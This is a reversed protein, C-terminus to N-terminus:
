LSNLYTNLNIDKNALGLKNRAKRRHEEVTHVSISLLEAIEKNTTGNKVMNCVEIERPTLKVKKDSIKSGFSSTLSDLSKRHQDIYKKSAGKLRFKDLTPLVITELNSMIDKKIREKDLEIQTLVEKLAINKEELIKKQKKLDKESQKLAEEAVKRETIERWVARAGVVLGSSSYVSTVSLSVDIVNGDKKVVKLEVDNVKKGKRWLGIARKAINASSPHYLDLISRGIIEDKKFGLNELLTNNCNTIKKTKSDVTLYMIPANDFLDEFNEEAIRLDKEIKIRDKIEKRLEVTRKEVQKELSGHAEKLALEANKRNTINVVVACVAKVKGNAEKIPFFSDILHMTENPDKPLKISFEFQSSPKGSKQVERLRPLISKAAHPLVDTLPRGIHDEISLGNLDALFSNIRYYRFDPGELIAIGLPLNSIISDLYGYSKQDSISDLTDTTLNQDISDLDAQNM